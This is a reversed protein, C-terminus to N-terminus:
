FQTLYVLLVALRSINALVYGGTRGGISVKDQPMIGLTVGNLARQAGSTDTSHLILKAALYESSGNAETQRSYESIAALLQILTLEDM